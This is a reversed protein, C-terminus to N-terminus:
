GLFDQSRAHRIFRLLSRNSDPIRFTSHSTYYKRFASVCSELTYDSKVQSGKQVMRLVKMDSEPVFEIVVDDALLNFLFAVQAMSLGTEVCLHHILGLGCVLDAKVRRLFSNKSDIENPLLLSVVDICVPIVSRENLLELRRNLRCVANTDREVAITTKAHRSLILSHEGEGAGLDLVVDPRIQRCVDKLFNERFVLGIDSYVDADGIEVYRKQATKRDVWNAVEHLVRNLWSEASKHKRRLSEMRVPPCPEADSRDQNSFYSSIRNKVPNFTNM